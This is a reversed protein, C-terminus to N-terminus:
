RAERVAEVVRLGFATEVDFAALPAFRGVESPTGGILVRGDCEVWAHGEVQGQKGRVVGVQLRSPFGHRALLAQVALARSLCTTPGPVRLSAATVAWVVLDAFAGLGEASHGPNGPDRTVLRRLLPFPLRGLGIQIVSLLVTAKLLLRREAPSLAMFRRLLRM